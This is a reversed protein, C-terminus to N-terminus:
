CCIQKTKHDRQLYCPLSGQPNFDESEAGIKFNSLPDEGSKIDLINLTLVRSNKQLVCHIGNPIRCVQWRLRTHETSTQCRIIIWQRLTNPTNEVKWTSFCATSRQEWIHIFLSLFSLHVSLFIFYVDHGGFGNCINSFLLYFIPLVQVWTARVTPSCAVLQAIVYM